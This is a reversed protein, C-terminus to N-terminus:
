CLLMFDESGLYLFDCLLQMYPELGVLFHSIQFEEYIRFNTGFLFSLILLNAYILILFGM